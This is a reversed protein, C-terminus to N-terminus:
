LRTFELLRFDHRLDRLRYLCPAALNPLLLRKQFTDPRIKSSTLRDPGARYHEVWAVEPSLRLVQQLNWGTGFILVLLVLGNLGPNNFSVEWLIPALIGATVGVAALFVAIRILYTTPRTM